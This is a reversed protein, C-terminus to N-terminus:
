GPSSGNFTAATASSGALPGTDQGLSMGTYTANDAGENALVSDAATGGSTEDLRWYSHPGSDLM